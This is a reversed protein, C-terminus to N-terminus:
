VHTNIKRRNLRHGVHRHSHPLRLGIATVISCLSPAAFRSCRHIYICARPTRTKQRVFSRPAYHTHTDRGADHMTDSTDHPPTVGNLRGGRRRGTRRSTRRGTGGGAAAAAAIAVGAVARQQSALCDRRDATSHGTSLRDARGGTFGERGAVGDAVRRPLENAAGRTSNPLCRVCTLRHSRLRM